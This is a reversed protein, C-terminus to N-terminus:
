RYTIDKYLPDLLMFLMGSPFTTKICLHDKYVPIAKLAPKVKCM